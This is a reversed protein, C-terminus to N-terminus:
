APQVHVARFSLGIVYKSHGESRCFIDVSFTARKCGLDYWECRLIKHHTQDGNVRHARAGYDHEPIQKESTVVATLSCQNQSPYFCCASGTASNHLHFPQARAAQLNVEAKGGM